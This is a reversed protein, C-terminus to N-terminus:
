EAEAESLEQEIVAQIAEYDFPNGIRKNNIMITPTQLINFDKVLQQDQDVRGQM